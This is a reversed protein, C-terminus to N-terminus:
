AAEVLRGARLINRGLRAADDDTNIGVAAWAARETPELTGSSEIIPVATGTEAVRLTVRKGDGRLNEAYQRMSQRLKGTAAEGDLWRGIEADTIELRFGQYSPIMRPDPGEPLTVGGNNAYPQGPLPHEPWGGPAATAKPGFQVNYGVVRLPETSPGALYAPRMLGDRKGMPGQSGHKPIGPKRWAISDVRYHGVAAVPALARQNIQWVKVQGIPNDELRALGLIEIGESGDQKTDIMMGNDPSEPQTGGPGGWGNGWPLLFPTRIAALDLEWQKLQRLWDFLFWGTAKKPKWEAITGFRAPNGAVTGFDPNPWVVIWQNARTKDWGPWIPWSGHGLTPAISTVKTGPKLWCDISGYNLFAEAPDM